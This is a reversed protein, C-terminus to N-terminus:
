EVPGLAEGFSELPWWRVAVLQWRDPDRTLAMPQAMLLEDEHVRYVRVGSPHQHRLHHFGRRTGMYYMHNITSGAYRRMVLDLETRSTVPSMPSACGWGLLLFSGFLIGRLFLKRADPANM